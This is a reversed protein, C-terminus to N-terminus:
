PAAARDQWLGAAIISRLREVQPFVLWDYEGEEAGLWNVLARRFFQSPVNSAPAIMSGSATSIALFARRSKTVLEAAAEIWDACPELPVSASVQRVFEDTSRETAVVHIHSHDHCAGGKDRFSFSGHEFLVVDQGSLRRMRETVDAILPKLEAREHPELWGTSLVHRRPVILVYWDTLAGICPVVVFHETQHLLYQNAAALGLDHFMTDSGGSAENCFTCIDEYTEDDTEAAAKIDTM